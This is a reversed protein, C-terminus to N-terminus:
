HQVYQGNSNLFNFMLDFSEQGDKLEFHDKGPLQINTAGELRPSELLNGTSGDSFMAVATYFIDAGTGDYITLYAVFDDLPTEDPNNLFYLFDSDPHGLERCLATGAQPGFCFNVGHNPGAIAIFHEVKMYADKEELWARAVTVGLSHAILDVKEVGTYDLVGNVFHEIDEVNARNSNASDGGFFDIYSIAWLERPYYGIELFRQAVTNWSDATHGNGHLFVIPRHIVCGESGGWGGLVTGTLQDDPPFFDEPFSSPVTYSKGLLSFFTVSSENSTITAKGDTARVKWNMTYPFDNEPFLRSITLGDLVYFTDQGTDEWLLTQNDVVNILFWMYRVADGDPDVSPFWTFILEQETNCLRFVTNDEPTSLTVKSPFRNSPGEISECGEVAPRDGIKFTQEETVTTPLNTPKERQCAILFLVSLLLSGLFLTTGLPLPRRPITYYTNKLLNMTFSEEVIESRGALGGMM